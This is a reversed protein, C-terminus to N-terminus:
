RYKLSEAPYSAYESMINEAPSVRVDDNMCGINGANRLNHLSQRSANMTKMYVPVVSKWYSYSKKATKIYRVIQNSDM